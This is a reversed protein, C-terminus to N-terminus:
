QTRLVDLFAKQPINVTGIQKMRKKGEKQKEWLKRKRTIDGGYCKATVDKNMARITERAVIKGGIAAQIVVQFMHRPIVEKLKEALQRGRQRAKDAHLLTSFADMPDANILIDLKVIDAPRYDIIEYDMSAYGRTCSKLRDHFDLIVENLPIEFTMLVRQIGSLSETHTSFGRRDQVLGMITGIADTPAVIFARLFPEDISEIQTVPPFLAPNDVTIVTRDTKHVRYSVSPSTSIINIGFERELREQIIEMHLLGLFGCRFGFGLAISSEAEFQFAADNLQLRGIADKLLAYDGSDIPYLGCFVMPKMEQFGPLAKDAPRNAETITDGIEVDESVKINGVFYGVEGPGLVDTAVAKPRFVGVELVDFTRQTNMMLIKSGRKIQGGFVRFYVNVGRFSDYKSDFILAKLCGSAGGPDEKPPPVRHLIAAFIDAIGIGKKASALLIEEKPICLIEEIQQKAMEVNANPLDIKNIIPIIALHHSMALHVNAVTQAEVGQAADVLLLAGECASLSRSVEYSFDVHGPTDILNLVYEPSEVGGIAPPTYHLRVPHAKITIGRERELDMSDLLQESMDRKAVTHTFELLRDALTSKGHDIHAIICFNCLLNRNMSNNRVTGTVPPHRPEKAAGTEAACGKLGGEAPECHLSRITELPMTPSKTDQVRPWLQRRTQRYAPYGGCRTATGLVRARLALTCSVFDSSPYGRRASSPLGPVRKLPHGYGISSRSLAFTCDSSLFWPVGRYSVDQM